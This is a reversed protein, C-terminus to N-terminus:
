AAAVPSCRFPLAVGVSAMPGPLLVPAPAGRPHRGLPSKLSGPRGRGESRGWSEDVSIPLEHWPEHRGLRYLVHGGGERQASFFLALLVPHPSLQRQGVLPAVAAPSAGPRQARATWDGPALEDGAKAEPRSKRSECGTETVFCCFFVNTSHLATLCPYPILISEAGAWPGGAALSGEQATSRRASLPPSPWVQLMVIGGGLRVTMLELNQEVQQVVSELDHYDSEEKIM